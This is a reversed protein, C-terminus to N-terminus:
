ANKGGENGKGFMRRGRRCVDKGREGGRGLIRGEKMGEKLAKQLLWEGSVADMCNIFTEM